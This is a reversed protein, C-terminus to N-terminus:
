FATRIEIRFLADDVWKEPKHVDLETPMVNYDGTLVVPVDEQLLKKRTSEAAQVM